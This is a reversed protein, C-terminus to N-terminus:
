SGCSGDGFGQVGMVFDVLENAVREDYSWGLSNLSYPYALLCSDPNQKRMVSLSNKPVRFVGTSIGFLLSTDISIKMEDIMEKYIIKWGDVDLIPDICIRVKWGCGLATKISQLRAKLSPTRMEYRKIISEPSISWAFIFNGPPDAIGSFRAFGASKTRLEVKLNEHKRAFDIWESIFDTLHDLAPLDSEYSICVYAPKIELLKALERFTDEINVFIVISASPYMGQLFCYECRYVCNMIDSTYYFNENGFDDCFASGEYLFTDNKRALILKRSSAQSSYHQNKKCFVDKYHRVPIVASGPLRSLIKQTVPHLFIDEEVYIHSFDPHQLSDACNEM